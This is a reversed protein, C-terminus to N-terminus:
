RCISWGMIKSIVCTPETSKQKITTFNKEGVISIIQEQNNKKKEMLKEFKSM